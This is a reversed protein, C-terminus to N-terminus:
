IFCLIVPTIHLTTVSLSFSLYGFGRVLCYRFPEKFVFTLYANVNKVSSRLVAADGCFQCASSNSLKVYATYHGKDLTGTQNETVMVNFKKHFSVDDVVVQLSFTETCQVRKINKIFNGHHNVFRKLQLVLYSGVKLIVHGVSAPQYSECLNCVFPDPENLEESQLYINFSTQM